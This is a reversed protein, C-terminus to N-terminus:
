PTAIMEPRVTLWHGILRGAGLCSTSSRMSVPNPGLLKILSSTEVAQALKGAVTDCFALYHQGMGTFGHGTYYVVTVSDPTPADDTLWKELDVRFAQSPPDHKLQTLTEKYGYESFLDTIRRIEDPVQELRDRTDQYNETGSAILYRSFGDPESAPPSPV